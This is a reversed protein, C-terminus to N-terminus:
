CRRDAFDVLGAVMQELLEVAERQDDVAFKSLVHRVAETRRRNVVDWVARGRHTPSVIIVRGDDSGERRSAYGNKVLKRITRSANSADMGLLASLETVRCSGSTVLVGLADIQGLDLEDHHERARAEIRRIAPGRQMERWASQFRLALQKDTRPM